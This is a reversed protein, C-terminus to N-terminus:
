CGAPIWLVPVCPGEPYGPAAAADELPPSPSSLPPPIFLGKCKGRRTTNLVTSPNTTFATAGVARALREWLLLLVYM